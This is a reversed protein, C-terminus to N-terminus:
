EGRVAAYFKERNFHINDEKFMDALAEIFPEPGWCDPCERIAKAIAKYHKRTFMAM